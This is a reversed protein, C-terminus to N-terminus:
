RPRGFRIALFGISAALGVLFGVLMAFFAGEDLRAPARANAEVTLLHIGTLFAVLMVGFACGWTALTSLTEARRVPALWHERYRISVRSTAVRPIFGICAVVALPLLTTLGVMFLVYDDHSMFGNAYGGKAFHTAVRAPLPTSTMWVVAPALALSLVFLLRTVMGM